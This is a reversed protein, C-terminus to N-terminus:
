GIRLRRRTEAGGDYLGRMANARIRWMDGVMQWTASIPSVHSRDRYHWEIPVSTVRRGQRQAIYLVEVDFAWGDITTKRFLAEAAAASFLKFGCQTDDIGSILLSKVLWNFARGMVHRYMPEGVRRAGAGERTGIAIDCQSPVKALFRAIQDIPMSLDADCMFRLDGRAALMGARVASWKGRHEERQVVVRPDRDAYREVASATGDSSGDDVVRLKWHFPYQSLGSRVRDLSDTIRAAENYAPMVISLHVPLSV